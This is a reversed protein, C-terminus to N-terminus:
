GTNDEKNANLMGVFPLLTCISIKGQNLDFTGEACRRIIDWGNKHLYTKNKMRKLIFQIKTQQFEKEENKPKLTM